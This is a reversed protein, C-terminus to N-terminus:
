DVSGAAEGFGEPLTDDDEYVPAGKQKRRQPPPPAAFDAAVAQNVQAQQGAAFKAIMAELRKNQELLAQESRARDALEQQVRDLEAALMTSSGRTALENTWKQALIRLDLMGSGLNAVAQDSLAALQQITFVKNYKLLEAQERSIQPWQEIPTGDILASNIKKSERWKLYQEYVGKEQLLQRKYSEKLVYHVNNKRDGPTHLEVIEHTKFVPQGNEDFTGTNVTEERFIPVLGAAMQPMQMTRTSFGDLGALVNVNVNEM